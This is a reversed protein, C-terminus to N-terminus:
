LSEEDKFNEQLVELRSGSENNSFSITLKFRSDEVIEDPVSWNWTYVLQEKEKVM